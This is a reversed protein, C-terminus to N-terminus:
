GIGDTDPCGGKTIPDTTEGPRLGCAGGGAANRHEGEADAPLMQLAVIDHM